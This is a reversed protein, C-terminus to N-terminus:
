PSHSRGAAARWFAFTERTIAPDPKVRETQYIGALCHFLAGSEKELGLLRSSKLIRSIRLHNHNGASFWHQSKITFDPGPEIVLQPDFRPQFGFFALMRLFSRQVSRHLDPRSRFAAIAVADLLPAQPHFASTEALPFMWQIFDHTSELREDPWQQIERLYRGRHDPTKGSHFGIISFAGARQERMQQYRRGVMPDVKAARRAPISSALRAVGTLLLGVAVYTEPGTLRIGYLM